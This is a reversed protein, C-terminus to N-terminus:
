AAKTLFLNREAERRRTLGALTKIGQKNWRLLQDAAGKYDGTNLLRLLTSKRFATSGVNYIFSVLADFQNQTLAVKVYLHIASECPDVDNALYELAVAESIADDNLKVPKGNPYITTGYGITPVDDNTPMYPHARFGEFSKILNLGRTSTKM